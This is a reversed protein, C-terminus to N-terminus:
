GVLWGVGKRIGTEANRPSEEWPNGVCRTLGGNMLTTWPESELIQLVGCLKGLTGLANAWSGDGGDSPDFSFVRFPFPPFNKNSFHKLSWFDFSEGVQHFFIFLFLLCFRKINWMVDEHRFMGAADWTTEGQAWRPWPVWFDAFFRSDQKPIWSLHSSTKPAILFHVKIYPHQVLFLPPLVGWIM